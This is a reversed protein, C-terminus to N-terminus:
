ARRRYLSHRDIYGIVADPVLYRVSKGRSLRKRIDTSSIDLFTVSRFFLSSGSPSRFAKRAPLYRFSAATSTPLIEDLRQDDYGPRTMVVFHCLLLLKEWDKWRRIDAFADRGLIFFLDLDRGRADLFHRVTDVSYSRGERRAEADSVEFAPNGEVALAVMKLRDAFPTVKAKKLPPSAAPVFLVRDLGFMERVEEACRLHGVHIPDFTGGLLGWRM